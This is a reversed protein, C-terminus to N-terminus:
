QNPQCELNTGEGVCLKTDDLFTGRGMPVHSFTSTLPQANGLGAAPDVRIVSVPLAEATSAYFVNFTGAAANADAFMGIPFGPLTDRGLETGQSTTMDFRAIFKDAPSMVAVFKSSLAALQLGSVSWDGATAGNVAIANKPTGNPLSYQSLMVTPGSTLVLVDTESGNQVVAVDVPTGTIPIVIPTQIFIDNVIDQCLVSNATPQTGCAFGNRAAVNVIGFGNTNGGGAEVGAETYLNLGQLYGQGIAIDM